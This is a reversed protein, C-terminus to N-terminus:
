EPPRPGGAGEGPVGPSPQPSPEKLTELHNYITCSVADTEKLVVHDWFRLVAIGASKLVKTREDDYRKQEPESHQGGDLEVVVRSEVCYFDVIYGLVPVQRRFKHGGLRGNRLISWMRREADTGNHRLVRAFGKLRPTKDRGSHM